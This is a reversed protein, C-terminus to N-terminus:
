DSTSEWRRAGKVKEYLEVARRDPREAGRLTDQGLRHASGAGHLEQDLRLALGPALQVASTPGLYLGNHGVGRAPAERDGLGLADLQDLLVLEIPTRRGLNADPM